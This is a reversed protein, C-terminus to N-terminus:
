RSGALKICEFMLDDINNETHQEAYSIGCESKKNWHKIIGSIVVPIDSGPLTLNIRMKSEPIGAPMAASLKIKIGTYSMNIISGELNITDEPPPPSITIKATLGEPTFRPHSRNDNNMMMERRISM